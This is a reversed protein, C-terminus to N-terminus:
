LLRARRGGSQRRPRSPAAHLAAARVGTGGCLDDKCLHTRAHWVDTGCAQRETAASRRARLVGHAGCLAARRPSLQRGSASWFVCSSCPASCGRCRDHKLVAAGRARAASAVGAAAPVSPQCRTSAACLVHCRCRRLPTARCCPASALVRRAAAGHRARACRACARRRRAASRGCCPLTGASARPVTPCAARAEPADWRRAAKRDGALGVLRLQTHTQRCGAHARLGRRPHRCTARAGARPASTHVGSARAPSKIVRARQSLNVLHLAGPAARRSM